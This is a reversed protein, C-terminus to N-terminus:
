NFKESHFISCSPKHYGRIVPSVILSRFSDINSSPYAQIEVGNLELVTEKNNFTLGLKREFIAKLRKILKIALDQNPGTGIVMQTISNKYLDTSTCLWAMIRLM